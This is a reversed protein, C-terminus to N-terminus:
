PVLKRQRVIKRSTSFLRFSGGRVEVANRNRSYCFHKELAFVCVRSDLNDCFLHKYGLSQSCFKLNRIYVRSFTSNLGFSNPNVRERGLYVYDVPYQEM